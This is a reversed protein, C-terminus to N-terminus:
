DRSQLSKAPLTIFLLPKSYCGSKMETKQGLKNEETLEDGGSRKCKFTNPEIKKETKQCIPACRRHFPGHIIFLSCVAKLPTNEKEDHSLSFEGSYRM